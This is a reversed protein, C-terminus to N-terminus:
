PTEEISYGFSIRTWKKVDRCVTVVDDIEHRYYSEETQSSTAIKSSLDFVFVLRDATRYKDVIVASQCDVSIFPEFMLDALVMVPLIFFLIIQLKTSTSM